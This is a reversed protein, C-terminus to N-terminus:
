VLEVVFEAATVRVLKTQATRTVTQTVSDDLFDSVFPPRDGFLIDSPISGTGAAGTETFDRARIFVCPIKCISRRLLGYCRHYGDKLFMRGKFEAVQIFSTGFHDPFGMIKEKRGSQGPGSSVEVDAMFPQGIGLNPDPSRFTIAKRDSDIRGAVTLGVGQRPLCFCFLSDPDNPAIAETRKVADEEIISWRSSLLRRLDVSGVTWDLGQLAGVVDPREQFAAAREKLKGRFQSLVCTSQRYPPRRMLAAKAGQWKRRLHSSDEGPVSSRSLLAAIAKEDNLWALLWKSQEEM